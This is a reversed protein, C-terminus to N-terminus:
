CALISDRAIALPMPPCYSVLNSKLLKTPQRNPQSRCLYYIFSNESVVILNLLGFTVQAPSLYMHSFEHLYLLIFFLNVLARSLSLRSPDGPFISLFYTSFSM